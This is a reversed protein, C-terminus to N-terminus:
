ITLKSNINKMSILGNKFNNSISNNNNRKKKLNKLTFINYKELKLEKFNKNGSNNRLFKQVNNSIKFIKNQVELM